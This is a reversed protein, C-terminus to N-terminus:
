ENTESERELVGLERLLEGLTELVNCKVFIFRDVGATKWDSENDGPHGALVVVAAGAEKLKAAVAPVLDPYLKDSSCIVATSAGSEIFAAAAQEATEFGDNGVIEFGGAEFFNKSWTARAVHHAIPGMNAQFVKPRQGNKVQWADCADRLEEFPAAFNRAPLPTIAEGDTQDAGLGTTIQGITAGQFALDMVVGVRGSAKTLGDTSIGANRAKGIRDAATSRLALADLPASEIPEELINPFESVGTIGQKRIAIDRARPEFAAEIQQAVWGSSLAAQMGGQKEIDGLFQWASTALEETLQDMFWSGGAPDMVRNLHSEEQLVLLSNRAVRRSFKTPGGALIDFPVSTITEAGGLGAAFVAVSNRLLNVYPDRRTLVRNGTRAHIRMPCAQTAGGCAEIVRSWVWRAARLKAISLFHHTGLHFRFMLQGSAADLEMGADLMARLYEVGTAAALAIDQAANAGADHYPSTDVGVATVNPYNEATWKALEAMMEIAKSAPMPLQGERALTALPDANFAGRCQDGSLNRKRWLGVLLAAAPLFAAGADIGVQIMDLHVDAFLEEFDVIHYALIGGPETTKGIRADDPDWGQRVSHDLQLQVSTIGGALDDLIAKNAVSIEPESFEQRVDWGTEVAGLPTSGRVFHALGPFGLPDDGDVEDRGSYVPQVDIGEYTRRVLKRDFPAGKLMQEVIDRWQEYEVPPFEDRITFQESQITSM